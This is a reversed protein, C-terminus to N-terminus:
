PENEPMVSAISGNESYTGGSLIAANEANSAAFSFLSTRSVPITRARRKPKGTTTAATAPLGAAAAPTLLSSTMSFISPTSVRLM